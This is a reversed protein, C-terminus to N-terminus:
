DCLSNMGLDGSEADSIVELVGSVALMVTALAIVAAISVIIISTRYVHSLRLLLAYRNYKKVVYDILTQGLITSIIGIAAFWLGYDIILM